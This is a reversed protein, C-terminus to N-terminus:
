GGGEKSHSVCPEDRPVLGAATIVGAFRGRRSDLSCLRRLLERNSASSPRVRVGTNASTASTCVTNALM